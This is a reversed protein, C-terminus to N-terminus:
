ETSDFALPSTNNEELSRARTAPFTFATRSGATEDPCTASNPRSTSRSTSGEICCRIYHEIRRGTEEGAARCRARVQTQLVPCSPKTWSTCVPSAREAKSARSLESRRHTQRDAAHTAHVESNNSRTRVCTRPAPLPRFSNRLHHHHSQLASSRERSERLSTFHYIERSAGASCGALQWSKALAPRLRM